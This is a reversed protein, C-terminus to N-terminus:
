VKPHQIEYIKVGNGKIIDELSSHAIGQISGAQRIGHRMMPHVGRRMHRRPSTMRKLLLKKHMEALSDLASNNDYINKPMVIKTAYTCQSISNGQRTNTNEASKILSISITIVILFILIFRNQYGLKM